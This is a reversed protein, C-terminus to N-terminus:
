NTGIATVTVAGASASATNPGYTTPSQNVWMWMPMGVLYRGAAKPSTIDPGALKMSDVARQALEAPNVAAAAPPPDALWIRRVM